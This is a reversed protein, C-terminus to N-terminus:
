PSMCCRAGTGNGSESPAAEVRTAGNLFLAVLVGYSSGRNIRYVARPSDVWASGDAPAGQYSAHHDDEVWEWVNGALDCVGWLDNGAPKSCVPSPGQPNGCAAHVADDCTPETNGWPYLNGASGNRAAYEWESESCLRGGAWACFTKSQNWDVCVVPTDDGSQLCGSRPATCAGATVCSQYQAVTVESMSMRFAPVTVPHIPEGYGTLGMQFTGGPISVM